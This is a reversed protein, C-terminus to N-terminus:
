YAVHVLDEQPIMTGIKGTAYVYQRREKREFWIDLNSVVDNQPTGVLLNRPSAFVARFPKDWATGTKFYTNIMWDWTDISAITVGNYQAVNFGTFVTQWPMIEKYTKKIDLTLADALKKNMMLIADGNANIRSDADMLITDVLTTAVGETRIGSTQAAFTTQSNAAIATKQSTNSTTIDFLRKWFGDCATFLTTDTGDVLDGGGTQDKAETDGFWIFRWLMRAIQTRLLELYLAMFETGTLDGIETGTRLSYEAITGELDEYCIKLPISWDGIEWRKQKNGIGIDKYTPDCGAGANGVADMEGILAVPDNAKAYVMTSFRRFDESKVLEVILADRLSEINEKELPINSFYKAM